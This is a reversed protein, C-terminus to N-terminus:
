AVKTPATDVAALRPVREVWGLSTLARHINEAKSRIVPRGEIYSSVTRPDCEALGAVRILERRSIPHLM